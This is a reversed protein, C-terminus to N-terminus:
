GSYWGGMDAVVTAAGDAANCYGRADAVRVIWQKLQGLLQMADAVQQM